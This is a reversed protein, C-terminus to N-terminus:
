RLKAIGKRLEAQFNERANQLAQDINAIEDIRNYSNDNKLVLSKPIVGDHYDVTFWHDKSTTLMVFAGAGLSAVIVVSGQKIRHHKSYNYTLKDACGYPIEM